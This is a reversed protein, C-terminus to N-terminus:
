RKGGFGGRSGGGFGGRSSGGFGHGGGFGGRNGSGFGGSGTPHGGGYGGFPRGGPPPPGHHHHHRHHWFGGFHFPGFLGWGWLPRWVGFTPYRFMPYVLYRFLSILVFATIILSFLSGLVVAGGASRHRGYNSGNGKPVNRGYWARLDEYLDLIEEDAQTFIDGDMHEITTVRLDNNVYSAMTNGFDMYWAEEDRVIMLVIDNQGFGYENAEFYIADAIDTGNLTDVTILGVVSGYKKDLDENYSALRQETDDSLLDTNDVVWQSYYRDSVATTAKDVGLWVAGAILLVTVLIAPGYKKLFSM